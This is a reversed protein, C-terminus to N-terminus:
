GISASLHALAEPPLRVDAATLTDRLQDADRVSFVPLTPFPQSLLYGLVIQTLTLGTERSLSQIRVLRAETERNLFMKRQMDRIADRRGAALKHFVGYAQSTYPIAALGQDRHYQWLQDDMAVMTPDPLGALDVSALSWLNSVASFGQAGSAQSYAQAEALRNADWNSAGYCRIKGARVQAELTDIM